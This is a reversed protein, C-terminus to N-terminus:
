QEYIMTSQDNRLKTLLPVLYAHFHLLPEVRMRRMLDSM